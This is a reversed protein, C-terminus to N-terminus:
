RERQEKDYGDIDAINTLYTWSKWCAYGVCSMIVLASLMVGWAFM